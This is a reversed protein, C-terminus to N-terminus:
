NRAHSDRDEKWKRFEEWDQQGEYYAQAQQSAREQQEEDYLLQLAERADPDLTPIVTQSGSWACIALLQSLPLGIKNSWKEFQNYKDRPLRVWARVSEQERSM